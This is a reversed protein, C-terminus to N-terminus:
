LEDKVSIICDDIIGRSIWFLAFGLFSLPALISWFVVWGTAM